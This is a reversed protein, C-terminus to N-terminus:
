DSQLNFRKKYPCSSNGCYYCHYGPNYKRAILNKAVLSVVKDLIRVSDIMQDREYIKVENFNTLVIGPLEGYEEEYEKSYLLAQVFATGDLKGTKHEHVYLKGDRMLVGDPNGYELKVNIKRFGMRELKERVILLELDHQVAKHLLDSVQFEYCPCYM